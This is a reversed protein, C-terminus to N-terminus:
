IVVGHLTHSPQSILIGSSLDNYKWRVWSNQFAIDILHKIRTPKKSIAVLGTPCLNQAPPRSATLLRLRWGQRSEQSLCWSLEISKFASLVSPLSSNMPWAYVDFLAHSLCACGPCGGFARPQTFIHLSFTKMTTKADTETYRDTSASNWFQIASKRGSRTQAPQRHYAPWVYKWTHTSKWFQFIICM